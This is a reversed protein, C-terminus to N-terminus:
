TTTVPAAPETDRTRERYALALIAPVLPAWLINGILAVILYAALGVELSSASIGAAVGVIPAVIGVTLAELILIGAMAVALRIRIGHSLVAARALGPRIGPGEVIVVPVFLAWRAVLVVFGVTLIVALVAVLSGILASRPSGAVGAWAQFAVSSQLGFSLASLAASAVGLAVIPKVLGGHSAVRRFTDAVSVPRGAAAALGAATLMSFGILGVIVGFGGGVVSLAALDGAPVMVDQIRAEMEAQLALSNPYRYAEPNAAVRALVDAMVEFTAKIVQGVILLGPIAVLDAILQPIIAVALFRRPM